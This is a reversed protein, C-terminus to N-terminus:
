QKIVNLLRGRKGEDLETHYKNLHDACFKAVVEEPDDNEYVLIKEPRDKVLKIDLILIPDEKEPTAPESSAFGDLGAPNPSPSSRASQYKMLLERENPNFHINSSSPLHVREPHDGGQDASSTIQQRSHRSLSQPEFTCAPLQGKSPSDPTSDRGGESWQRSLSEPVLNRGEFRSCPIPNLLGSFNVPDVPLPNPQWSPSDAAEPHKM